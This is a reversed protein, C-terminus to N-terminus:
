DTRNLSRKWDKRLPLLWIDKKPKDYAKDRDYRGWGQTEGLHTWGSARYVGGTSRPTQVITEIIDSQHTGNAGYPANCLLCTFEDAPPVHHEETTKLTRVPTRGHGKTGPQQCHKSSSPIKTRSRVGAPAAPWTPQRRGVLQNDYRM